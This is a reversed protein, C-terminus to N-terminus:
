PLQAPYWPQVNWREVDHYSHVFEAPFGRINKRLLIVDDIEWLPIIAIEAALHAHLKHLLTRATRFDGANDLDILEQRLWDPLPALAEIRAQTELTLFPWLETMPEAM